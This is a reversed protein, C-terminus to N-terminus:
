SQHDLSVKDGVKLNEVRPGLKIVTGALNDGLVEPHNTLLGGDNQHMDFPTSATWEVRVQVEGEAPEVTPVEIIGLPARVGMSAVARHTAM